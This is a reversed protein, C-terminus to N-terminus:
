LVREALGAMAELFDIDAATFPRAITEVRDMYLLGIMTQQRFVPTAAAISVGDTSAGGRTLGRAARAVRTMLDQDPPRRVKNAALDGAHQLSFVEWNGAIQRLLVVRDVALYTRAAAAIEELLPVGVLGGAARKTLRTVEAVQERTSPAGEGTLEAAVLTLTPREFDDGVSKRDVTADHAHVADAEFRLVSKGATITGGDELHARSVPAGNIWTENASGMDVLEYGDTVYRIQCHSRSVDLDSLQIQNTVARGLTLEREGLLFSLGAEPGEIVTLWAGRLPQTEFNLDRSWAPPNAAGVSPTVDARGMVIILIALAVLLVISAGIITGM